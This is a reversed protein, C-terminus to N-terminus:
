VLVDIVVKSKHCFHFTMDVNAERTGHLPLRDIASDGLILEEGDIGLPRSTPIETHLAAARLIGIVLTPVSQLNDYSLIKLASSSDLAKKPGPLNRYDHTLVEFIACSLSHSAINELRVPFSSNSDINSSKM